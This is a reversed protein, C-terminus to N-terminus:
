RARRAFGRDYFANHVTERDELTVVRLVRAREDLYGDVRAQEGTKWLQMVRHLCDVLPPGTGIGNSLM